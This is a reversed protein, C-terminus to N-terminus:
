SKMKCWSNAHRWLKMKCWSNAHRWWLLLLENCVFLSCWSLSMILLATDSTVIRPEYVCWWWASSCNIVKYLLAHQKEKWRWRRHRSNCYWIRISDTQDRVRTSVIHRLGRVSPYNVDKWTLAVGAKTKSVSGLRISPNGPLHPAEDRFWPPSVRDEPWHTWPPHSCPGFDWDQENGHDGWCHWPESFVARLGSSHVFIAYM